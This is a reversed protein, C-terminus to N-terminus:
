GNDAAVAYCCLGDVAQVVDGPRLKKGRQTCLEGNVLFGGEQIRHKAQGGSNVVGMLKLFDDLRIYETTISQTITKM